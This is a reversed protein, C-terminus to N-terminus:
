NLEDLKALEKYNRYLKKLLIGYLLQYFLWVLFIIFILVLFTVVIIIILKKTEIESFKEVFLATLLVTSFIAMSLLNFLVYQKVTRRTKLIKDMLTKTNDIVCISKYNKYFQYLFYFLIIYSLVIFVKFFSLLHLEKMLELDKHQSDSFFFNIGNLIVFELVGIIFIWKVISSSKAHAMKYIEVQSLKKDSEPQNKWANKYKDLVDM